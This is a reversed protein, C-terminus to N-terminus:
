NWVWECFIRTKQSTKLQRKGHGPPVELTTRGFAGEFDTTGSGDPALKLNVEAYQKGSVAFFKLNMSAPQEVVGVNAGEGCTGTVIKARSTWEAPGSQANAVTVSAALAVAVLITGLRMDGGLIARQRVARLRANLVPVPLSGITASRVM